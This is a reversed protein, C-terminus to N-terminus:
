DRLKPYNTNFGPSISHKLNNKMAREIQIKAFILRL